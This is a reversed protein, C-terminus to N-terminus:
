ISDAQDEGDEQKEERDEDDEQADRQTNEDNEILSGISKLYERLTPGRKKKAEREEVPGGPACEDQLVLDLLKAFQQPHKRAYATLYGDAGGRGKGDSGIEEAAKLIADSLRTHKTRYAPRAHPNRGGRVQAAKIKNLSRAFRAPYKKAVFTAYGVLGHRGKGDAGHQEAAATFAELQRERDDSIRSTIDESSPPNMCREKILSLNSFVIYDTM